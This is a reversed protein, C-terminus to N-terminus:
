ATTTSALWAFAAPVIVLMDPPMPLNKASLEDVWAVERLEDAQLNLDGHFTTTGYMTVVYATRTGDPYTVEFDTGGYAGFLVCNQVLIGTGEHVERVAAELPSEGPEVGGGPTAWLDDHVHRGLLLRGAEDFIAVGAAPTLLLDTGLKARIGAMYDSLAMCTM